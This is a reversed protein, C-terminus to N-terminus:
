KSDYQAMLHSSPPTNDNGCLNSNGTFYYNVNISSTWGTQSSLNIGIVSGIDVGDTWTTNKNTSRDYSDGNSYPTCYPYGSWEGTSYTYNGGDFHMPREEVWSSYGGTPTSCEFFFDGYDWGSMIQTAIDNHNWSGFAVTSSSSQGMTGSASFSGYAGTDSFGVGLSSSSGNSYTVLARANGEVSTQAVAFHTNHHETFLTQTCGRDSAIAQEAAVGAAGSQGFADTSQGRSLSLNLSQTTSPEAARAKDDLAAPDQWSSGDFTRPFSFATWKDNVFAFAEFNVLGDSNVYAPDIGAPDERLTFTGDSASKTQAVSVVKVQAGASLKALEDNSPWARLIVDAGEVPAGDTGRVVGGAYAPTTLAASDQMGSMLAAEPSAGDGPSPAAGATASFYQPAGVTLATAFSAAVAAARKIRRKRPSM